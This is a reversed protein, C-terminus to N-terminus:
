NIVHRFLKKTLKTLSRDTSRDGKQEGQLVNFTEKRELRQFSASLLNLSAGLDVRTKSIWKLLNSPGLKTTTITDQDRKNHILPSYVSM